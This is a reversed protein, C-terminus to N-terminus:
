RLLNFFRETRISVPWRWFEWFPESLSFFIIDARGILNEEPVYGVLSLVRSDSSNDRNDGMLFYHKPPVVYEPTNDLAGRSLQDLVDYSKGEPMTERYRTITTSKGNDGVDIFSEEKVRPLPSGNIFLVGEKVQLRDGPMGVLRKVYDVTPDTPLRFVVIDGRKPRKKGEDDAIRGEFLNPSFPFSYKSYGYAFKSVFIYDGVLLTSKMSGSPIHFPAYFVSRLSLPLIVCVLILFAWGETWKKKTAKNDNAAMPGREIM